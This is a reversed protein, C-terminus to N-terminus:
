ERRRTESESLIRHFRLPSASGRERRATRCDGYGRDADAAAVVELPFRPREAPLRPQRERAPELEDRAAIREEVGVVGFPLEVCVECHAETWASRQVAARTEGRHVPRLLRTVL